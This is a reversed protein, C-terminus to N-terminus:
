QTTITKCGVEINVTGSVDVTVRNCSAPCLTVTKPLVPDDYYWGGNTPDCMAQSPVSVFTTPMTAGPPTYEVNIKMPDNHQGAPAPPLTYQCPPNSRARIKDMTDLFQKAIDKSLDVILATQTGGANAVTDLDQQNPPNMDYNCTTGPSTVGIVYTPIGSTLGMKAINTVDSVTGCGNPQGDTVLVVIVADDPHKTKWGMAHNIAGQLAPATPTNTSPQHNNLSSVIPMANGPLPAIEVDAGQYDTAMCSSIAAFPGPGGGLGFYQLGVNIGKAGPAQVFEQLAGKVATWRTDGSSGAGATGTASGGAGTAAGGAGSAGGTGASPPPLACSMSLSQDFMIFIDVTVEKGQSRAGSCEKMASTDITPIPSTIIPGTNGPDNPATHWSAGQMGGGGVGSAGGPMDSGNSGGTGDILSISNGSGSTASCAAVIAIASAGCIYRYIVTM